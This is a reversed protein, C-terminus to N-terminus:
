EASGVSNGLEDSYKDINKFYPSGFTHYFSVPPERHINNKKELAKIAAIIWDNRTILKQRKVNMADLEGKMFIKVMRWKHILQNVTRNKEFQEENLMTKWDKEGHKFVGRLLNATEVETFKLSKTDSESILAGLCRLREMEYQKLELYLSHHFSPGSLNNNAHTSNQHNYSKTGLDDDHRRQLEPVLSANSFNQEERKLHALFEDTISALNNFEENRDTDYDPDVLKNYSDIMKHTFDEEKKLVNGAKSEYIRLRHPFTKQAEAPFSELIAKKCDNEIESHHSSQLLRLRYNTYLEKSKFPDGLVNSNDAILEYDIIKDESFEKVQQIIENLLLLTLKDRELLEEKKLESESNSSHDM